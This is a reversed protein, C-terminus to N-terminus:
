RSSPETRDKEHRAEDSAIRWGFYTGTINGLVLGLLFALSSSFLVLIVVQSSVNWTSDHSSPAPVREAPKLPAAPLSDIGIDMSSWAWSHLLVAAGVMLMFLLPALAVELRSQSLWSPVAPQSTAHRIKQDRRKKSFKKGAHHPSGTVRGSRKAGKQEIFVSCDRDGPLSACVHNLQHWPIDDPIRIPKDLDLSTSVGASRHEDPALVLKTSSPKSLPHEYPVASSLKQLVEHEWVSEPSLQQLVDRSAFACLIVFRGTRHYADKGGEAVRFYCCWNDALTVIGFYSAERDRTSFPDGSDNSAESAAKRIANWASDLITNPIQSDAWPWYRHVKGPLACSPDYVALYLDCTTTM